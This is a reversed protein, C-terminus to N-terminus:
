QPAKFEVANIPSLSFCLVFIILAIWGLTVRVPDLREEIDSPPYKVGLFRGVIFGFALWTFDGKLQPLFKFASFHLAYILVAYMATDRKSIRLGTLASYLFLVYLPIYFVYKPIHTDLGGLVLPDPNSAPDVVDFGFGGYVILMVLFVSAIIRHKKYGFLGYVVHGGDLQGIPLLNLCTFFLALFGALLVPYHMVEHPNPVRSPDAVFKGFFTFILNTGITVDYMDVKQKSYFEPEYVHKAYDLGYEEYEPHFQFVHDPPPLTKFGYFLITLAIIFGSLPGALGIDFSQINSAPKSRLRIVAGLTGITVLFIPPFPIYYPLSTKVKHYIAVFYHGFEHATLFLLLPVSFEMGSYFDAWTYEGYFLLFPHRGFAVQAGAMTTTIFTTVFLTIQLLIRKKESM